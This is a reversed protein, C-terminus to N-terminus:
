FSHQVETAAGKEEWHTPNKISEGERKLIGKEQRNRDQM